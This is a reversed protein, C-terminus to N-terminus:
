NNWGVVAMLLNLRVETAASALDVACLLSCSVLMECHKFGAELLGLEELLDDIRDLIEDLVAVEVAVVAADGQLGHVVRVDREDGHHQLGFAEGRVAAVAVDGKSDVKAGQGLDQSCCLVVINQGQLCLIRRIHQVQLKLRALTIAQALIVQLQHINILLMKTDRLCIITRSDAHWRRLELANASIQHGQRLRTPM